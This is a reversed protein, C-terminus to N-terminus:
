PQGSRIIPAIEATTLDPEFQHGSALSPATWVHLMFYTDTNHVGSACTGSTTTRGVVQHTASLCLNDHAHWQTLSGGV